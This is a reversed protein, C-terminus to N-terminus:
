RCAPTATWIGNLAATLRQDETLQWGSKTRHVHRIGVERRLTAYLRQFLEWPDADFDGRGTLRGFLKLNRELLLAPPLRVHLPRRQRRVAGRVSCDNEGSARSTGGPVTTLVVTAPL